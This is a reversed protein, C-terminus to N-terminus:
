RDQDDHSGTAPRIMPVPRANLYIATFSIAMVFFSGFVATLMRLIVVMIRIVAGFATLLANKLQNQFTAQV